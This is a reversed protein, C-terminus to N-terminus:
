PQAEGTANTPNVWVPGMHYFYPQGHEDEYQIAKGIMPIKWVIQRSTILPDYVEVIITAGQQMNRFTVTASDNSNDMAIINMTEWERAIAQDPEIPTTANLGVWFSIGIEPWDVPVQYPAETPISTATNIWLWRGPPGAKHPNVTGFAAILLLMAALGISVGFLLWKAAVRFPTRAMDNRDVAEDSPKTPNM